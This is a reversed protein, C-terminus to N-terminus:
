MQELGMQFSLHLPHSSSLFSWKLKKGTQILLQINSIYRPLKSHHSKSGWHLKRFARVVTCCKKPSIKPKNQNEADGKLNEDKRRLLKPSDM